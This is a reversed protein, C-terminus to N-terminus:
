DTQSAMSDQFVTRVSSAFLHIRAILVGPLVVEARKIIITYDRFYRVSMRAIRVEM